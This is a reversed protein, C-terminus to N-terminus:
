GEPRRAVFVMDEGSALPRGDFWGFEGEIEFGAEALLERWASAEAWHLRM